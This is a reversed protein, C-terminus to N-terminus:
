VMTDALCAICFTSGEGRRGCVRCHLERRTIALRFIKMDGVGDGPTPAEDHEDLRRQEAQESNTAFDPDAWRRFTYMLSM